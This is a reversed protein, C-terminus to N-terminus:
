KQSKCKNQEELYLKGQRIGELDNIIDKLEPHTYKNGDTADKFEKYLGGLLTIVPGEEITLKKSVWIHKADDQESSFIKESEKSLEAARKETRQIKQEIKTWGTVDKIGQWLEKFFLGKPDIFNIPNNGCYIYRNLTLPDDIFGRVSDRQIFRGITPDYYRAGMHSLGSMGDNEVGFAGVFSYRGNKGTSNMVNGFPDYRYTNTVVGSSDTIASVSGLSDYHYYFGYTMLPLDSTTVVKSLMENGPWLYVYRNVTTTTASFEYVNNCQLADYVFYTTEEPENASARWKQVAVRKGNPAYLYKEYSNDPFIVKVLRNEYDYQYNYEKNVISGENSVTKLAQSGNGDHEYDVTVNKPTVASIGTKLNIVAGTSFTVFGPDYVGGQNDQTSNRNVMYETLENASNYQYNIVGQEDVFKTRNGVPDYYYEQFTKEPFTVRTLEYLNDYIYDTKGYGDVTNTKYGVKDYTYGFSSVIVGTLTNKHEINFMINNQNYTEIM